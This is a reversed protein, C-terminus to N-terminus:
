PSKGALKGAVGAIETSKPQLTTLVVAVVWWAAIVDLQKAMADANAIPIVDSRLAVLAIYPLAAIVVTNLIRLLLRFAWHGTFPAADAHELSTWDGRALPLLMSALAKQSTQFGKVGGLVVNRRLRRVAASISRAETMLEEIQGVKHRGAREILDALGGLGQSFSKAVEPDTGWKKRTERLTFLIDLVTVMLVADPSKLIESRQLLWFAFVLGQLLVILGGLFAAVAWSASQLAIVLWDPLRSFAAYQALVVWVLMMPVLVPVRDDSSRFFRPVFRRLSAVLTVSVSCQLALVLLGVAASLAM